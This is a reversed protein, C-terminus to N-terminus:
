GDSVTLGQKSLYSQLRPLQRAAFLVDSWEDIDRVAKLQTLGTGIKQARALTQSMVSSTGWDINTFLDAVAQQLGILYYGGDESPGIVNDGRYLALHADILSSQSVLAADAGIIAVPQYQEFTALMKSGLDGQVQPVVAVSFRRAISQIKPHREDLGVSLIVEGPWAQKAIALLSELLLMAIDAAQTPTCESLLRTKVKGEIPAKAFIILPIKTQSM